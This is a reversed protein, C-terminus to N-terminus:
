RRNGWAEMWLRRLEVCGAHDGDREASRLARRYSQRSDTFTRRNLQSILTDLLIGRAAEFATLGAEDPQILDVVPALPKGLYKKHLKGNIKQYSYRYPGHPCSKCGKRGCKVFEDRITITAM